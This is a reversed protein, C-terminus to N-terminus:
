EPVVSGDELIIRSNSVMGSETDYDSIRIARDNGDVSIGDACWISFHRAPHKGVYDRARNVYATSRQVSLDLKARADPKDDNRIVLTLVLNAPFGARRVYATFWGPSGLKGHCAGGPSHLVIMTAFRGLASM